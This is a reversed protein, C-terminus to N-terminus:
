RATVKLMRKQVSKFQLLYVAVDILGTYSIKEEGYKTRLSTENFHKGYETPDVITTNRRDEGQQPSITKNTASQCDEEQQLTKPDQIIELQGMTLPPLDCQDKKAKKVEERRRANHTDQRQLNRHKKLAQRFEKWSNTEEFLRKTTRGMTLNKLLRKSTTASKSCNINRVSVRTKEKIPNDFSKTSEDQPLIESKEFNKTCEGQPLIENKMAKAAVTRVTPHNLVHPFNEHIIKLRQLARWGLLCENKLSKSVLAQVRTKNGEYEVDFSTVGSCQMKGGQADGVAKRGTPDITLGYKKAVDFAVLSQSAGQDPFVEFDFPKKGHSPTIKMMATPVPENDDRASQVKYVTVRKSRVEPQSGSKGTPPNENRSKEKSCVRAFHGVVECNLCKKGVAPCSKGRKCTTYGCSKCEPFKPKPPRPKQHEHDWQNKKETKYASTQYITAPSPNLSGAHREANQKSEALKVLAATTPEEVRLFEEKLKPDRIGTMLGLLTMEEATVKDLECNRALKKKQVWWEDFPQGEEQTCKLYKYRRVHLPFEKLFIDKIKSLCGGQGLIATDQNVEDCTRLDDITRADLVTHLLQRQYALGKKQLTKDNDAFWAQFKDSWDNFEELNWSRQLKSPRLTDSINSKTTTNVSEQPTNETSENTVIKKRQNELYDYMSEVCKKAKGIHDNFEQEAQPFDPEDFADTLEDYFKNESRNIHAELGTIMSNIKAEDKVSYDRTEAMYLDAEEVKKTFATKIGGLVRKPNKSM